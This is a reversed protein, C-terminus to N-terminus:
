VNYVLIRGCSLISTTNLTGGVITYEEMGKLFVDTCPETVTINRANGDSDTITVSVTTDSTPILRIKGYLIAM